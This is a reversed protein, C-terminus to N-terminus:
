KVIWLAWTSGIVMGCASVFTLKLRERISKAEIFPVSFIMNVFPIVFGVGIVVGMWSHSIAYYYVSLLFDALLSAIFVFFYRLIPNRWLKIIKEEM